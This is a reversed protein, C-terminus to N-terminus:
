GHSVLAVGDSPYNPLEPPIHKPPHPPYQLSLKQARTIMEGVGREEITGAWGVEMGAQKATTSMIWARLGITKSLIRGGLRNPM